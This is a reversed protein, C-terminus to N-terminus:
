TRKPKVAIPLHSYNQQTVPDSPKKFLGDTVQSSLAKILNASQDKMQGTTFANSTPNMNGQKRTNGFMFTTSPPRILNRAIVSIDISEDKIKGVSRLLSNNISDRDTGPLGTLVESLTSSVVELIIALFASRDEPPALLRPDIVREGFIFQDQNGSAATKPNATSDVGASTAPPRAIGHAAAAFNHGTMTRLPPFDTSTKEPPGSLKSGTSAANSPNLNTKLDQRRTDRLIKIRTPCSRDSAAHNIKDRAISDNKVCNACIPSDRDVPCEQHVHGGGCRTCSQVGKCDAVLHGFGCCKFCQKVATKIHPEVRFKRHEILIGERVLKGKQDMDHVLLRLTLSDLRDKGTKVREINSYSIKEKDLYEEFLSIDVETAVSKIYVISNNSASLNFRPVFTHPTQGWKDTRLCTNHDHESLCTILVEDNRTLRIEGLQIGSPAANKIAAILRARDKKVELPLSTGLIVTLRKSGVDETTSPRSSRPQRPQSSTSPQRVQPIEPSDPSLQRKTGQAVNSKLPTTIGTTKPVNKNSLIVFFDSENTNKPVTSSLVASKNKKNPMKEDTVERIYKLVEAQQSNNSRFFNLIISEEQNFVNGQSKPATEGPDGM